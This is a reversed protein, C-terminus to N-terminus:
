GKSFCFSGKLKDNPREVRFHRHGYNSQVVELKNVKIFNVLLFAGAALFVCFQLRSIGNLPIIGRPSFFLLFLRNKSKKPLYMSSIDMRASFTWFIIKHIILSTVRGQNQDFYLGRAPWPGPGLTSAPGRLHARKVLGSM